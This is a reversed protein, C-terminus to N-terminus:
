GTANAWQDVVALFENRRIDFAGLKKYQLIGREDILFGNPVAKFGDLQGLLNEEDKVTPFETNARQVYPLIKDDGQM